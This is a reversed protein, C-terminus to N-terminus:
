QNEENESWNLVKELLYRADDEAGYGGWGLNDVVKELRSYYQQFLEPQNMKNLGKVVTEFMHVVSNYLSEPGDGYKRLFEGCCETYYMQLELISEASKNFKKYETIAKKATALSLRGLGHEPFFQNRIKKKTEEFLEEEYNDNGFEATLMGAADPCNKHIKCVLEVMERQNLQLLHKKLETMTIKKPM